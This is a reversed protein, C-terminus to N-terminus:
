GGPHLYPDEGGVRSPDRGSMGFDELNRREENSLPRGYLSMDPQNYAGRDNTVSRSELGRGPEIAEQAFVPTAIATSIVAIAGLIKLRTM